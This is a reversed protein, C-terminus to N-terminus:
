IKCICKDASVTEIEWISNCLGCIPFHKTYKVGIENGCNACKVTNSGVDCKPCLFHISMLNIFQQRAYKLHIPYDQKCEYLEHRGVDRLNDFQLNCKNIEKNFDLTIYMGIDLQQRYFTVDLKDKSPPIQFGQFGLHSLCKTCAVCFYYVDSKWLIFWSHTATCFQCKSINIYYKGKDKRCTKGEEFCAECLDITGIKIGKHYQYVAPNFIPGIYQCMINILSRNIKPLADSLESRITEIQSKQGLSM